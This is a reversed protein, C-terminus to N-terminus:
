AAAQLGKFQDLLDAWDQLLKVREPWYLSRNYARRIHNQDVHALATEIVDPNFGRGNLITSASARFGHATAENKEYGMRRLASNMANDSLPRAPSRISPLVLDYGESLPWVEDLVALSQRSLPVDHPRRMKMREAPIRWVRNERDVEPRRMLRVDGPRTMTYAVLLLAAKITPWGDYAEIDRMLIGLQREDTIAPRHTVTPKMLAGRLAYTPDTDAKLNAIAYRFVSGIMARLRGATERRGSKEVRKLVLLIDAATINRIPMRALPAALNELLWRNKELTREARGETKLKELFESAIAGFTNDAAVQAAVKEARRHASPDLGQSLLKRADNRKDRAEALGTEPFTGLGLMNAKGAFRYRFRWLKSGGPKVLLHLGQGDSLSYQKARPKANQIGFQTLPM